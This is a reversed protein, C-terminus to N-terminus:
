VTSSRGFSSQVLPNLPRLTPHHLRPLTWSSRVLAKARHQNPLGEGRKLLKEVQVERRYPRGGGSKILEACWSHDPLVNANPVDRLAFTTRNM